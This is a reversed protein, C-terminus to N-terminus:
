ASHRARRHARFALLTIALSVALMCSDEFIKLRSVPENTGFCGCNITLGMAYARVIAAVFVALLATTGAAAWRVWLGFILM